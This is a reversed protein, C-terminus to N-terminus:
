RNQKKILKNEILNQNEKKYLTSTISERVKKHQQQNYASKRPPEIIITKSCIEKATKM